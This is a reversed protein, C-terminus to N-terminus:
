DKVLFAKVMETPFVYTKGDQRCHAVWPRKPAKIKYDTIVYHRNSMHIIYEDKVPQGPVVLGNMMLMSHVFSSAKAAAVEPVKFEPGVFRVSGDNFRANGLNLSLGREELFPRLHAELDRRFRETSNRDFREIKPM